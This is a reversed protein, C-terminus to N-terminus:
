ATLQAVITDILQRNGAPFEYQTLAGPAVWLHETVALNRPEDSHPELTCYFAHLRVVGHDYPHEVVRIPKNVRVRVGLEEFFERELCSEPTEGPEIKGGPLEWYGGLVTDHPRRAILVARDGEPPRADLLVGVAVNIPKRGDQRAPRSQSQAPKAHM